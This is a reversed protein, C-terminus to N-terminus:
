KQTLSPLMSHVSKQINKESLLMNKLNEFFNRVLRRQIIKQIFM